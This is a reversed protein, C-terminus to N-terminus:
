DEASLAREPPVHEAFVADLTEIPVTCVTTYASGPAAAMHRALM